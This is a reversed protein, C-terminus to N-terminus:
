NKKTLGEPKAYLPLLDMSVRYVRTGDAAWGPRQPKTNISHASHRSTFVPPLAAAGVRDSVDAILHTVFSIVHVQNESRINIKQYFYLYFTPATQPALFLGFCWALGFIFFPPILGKIDKSKM